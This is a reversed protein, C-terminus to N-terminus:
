VNARSLVIKHKKIVLCCCFFFFFILPHSLIFIVDRGWSQCSLEFKVNLFFFFRWWGTIKLQPKSGERSKLESALLGCRGINLRKLSVITCIFQVGTATIRSCGFISLERLSPLATLFQLGTDTIRRCAGFDLTELSTTTSLHQLGTDTIRECMGLGLHVLFTLRSLSQLGVDTIRTCGHLCLLRLRTLLSLSQLGTDTILHCRNLNLCSLSTLVTLSAMGTDTIKNCSALTLSQLSSLRSLSHIGTDTIASHSLDMFRLGRLSHTEFCMANTFLRTKVCIFHLTSPDAIRTNWQKCVQLLRVRARLSSVVFQFIQPLIPELCVVTSNTSTPVHIYYTDCTYGCTSTCTTQM